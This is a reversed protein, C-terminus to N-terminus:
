ENANTCKSWIIFNVIPLKEHPMQLLISESFNILDQIIDTKSSIQTPKLEQPYIYMSVPTDFTIKQWM